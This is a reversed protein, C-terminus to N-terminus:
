RISTAVPNSKLSLGGKRVIFMFFVGVKDMLLLGEARMEVGRIKSAKKGLM